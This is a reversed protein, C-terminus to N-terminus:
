MQICTTITRCTDLFFESFESFEIVPKLDFFEFSNDRCINDVELSLSDMHTAYGSLLYAFNALFSMYLDIKQGKM